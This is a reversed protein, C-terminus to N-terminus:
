NKSRRCKKSYTLRRKKAKDGSLFAELDEKAVYWLVGVKRGRIKGERIYARITLPTIPLIKELERVSYLEKKSFKIPM